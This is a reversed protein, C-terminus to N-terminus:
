YKARWNRELMQHMMAPQPVVHMHGCGDCVLGSDGTDADTDFYCNGKLSMGCEENECVGEGRDLLGEDARKMDKLHDFYGQTRNTRQYNRDECVPCVLNKKEEVWIHSCSECTMRFM